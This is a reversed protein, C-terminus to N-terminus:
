MEKSVAGNSALCIRSDSNIPELLNIELVGWYLLAYVTPKYIQKAAFLELADGLAMESTQNFINKCHQLCRPSNIPVRAYRWFTKINNLKPQVRIMTDTVVLFEYGKESCAQTAMMFLYQYKEQYIKSEPKVEVIQIKDGRWLMFDPTYLHERRNLLFRIKLPQEQYYKVTGDPELLHIYDREVPSEWWVLRGLKLSPFTGIRKLGGLNNIARVTM